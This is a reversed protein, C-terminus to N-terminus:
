ATEKCTGNIAVPVDLIRFYGLNKSIAIDNISASPSDNINSGVAAVGSCDFWRSVITPQCGWSILDYWHNGGFTRPKRLTISGISGMGKGSLNCRFGSKTHSIITDLRLGPNILLTQTIWFHDNAVRSFHCGGIAWLTTSDVTVNKM